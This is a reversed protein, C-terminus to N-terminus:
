RRGMARLSSDLTRSIAELNGGAGEQVEWLGGRVEPWTRPEDLMKKGGLNQGQRERQM